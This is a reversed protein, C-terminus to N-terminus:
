FVDTNLTIKTCAEGFLQKKFIDNSVIVTVIELHSINYFKPMFNYDNGGISLFASMKMAIHLEKHAIELLRIISTINYLDLDGDIDVVINSKIDMESVHKALYEFM